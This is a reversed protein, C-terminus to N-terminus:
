VGRGHHGRGRKRAIVSSTFRPGQSVDIGDSGPVIQKAAATRSRCLDIAAQLADLLHMETAKEDAVLKSEARWRGAAPQRAQAASSTTAYTM